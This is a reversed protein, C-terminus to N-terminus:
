NPTNVGFFVYDNVNEKKSFPAPPMFYPSDDELLEKVPTGTDNAIFVGMLIGDYFDPVIFYSTTRLLFKQKLFVDGDGAPESTNELIEQERYEYYGIHYKNGKYIVNGTVSFSDIQTSLNIAPFQYGTYYDVFTVNHYSYFSTSVHAPQKAYIPFTQTYKVEYIVYGPEDAGYVVVSPKSVTAMYNLNECILNNNSDLAVYVFYNDVDGSVVRLKNNEGWATDFEDIYLDDFTQTADVRTLDHSPKGPHVTGKTTEDTDDDTPGGIVGNDNGFKTTEGTGFGACSALSMALLSTVLLTAIKRKM